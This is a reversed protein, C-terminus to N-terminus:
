LAYYVKGCKPNRDRLSRSYQKEYTWISIVELTASGFPQKTRSTVLEEYFIVQLNTMYGHRAAQSIYSDYKSGKHWVSLIAFM